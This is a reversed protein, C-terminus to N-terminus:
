RVTEPEEPEITPENITKAEDQEVTAVIAEERLVEPDDDEDEDDFVKFRPEEMTKVMTKKERIVTVPEMMAWENNAMPLRSRVWSKATQQGDKSRDRNFCSRPDCPCRPCCPVEDRRCPCNATCGFVCYRYCFMSKSTMDLEIPEADMGFEDNMELQSVVRPKQRKPPAEKLDSKEKRIAPGNVRSRKVGRRPGEIVQFHVEEVFRYFCVKKPPPPVDETGDETPKRKMTEINIM